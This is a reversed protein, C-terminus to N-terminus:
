TQEWNTSAPDGPAATLQAGLVERPVPMQQCQQCATLPYTQQPVVLQNQFQKEQKHLYKWNSSSFLPSTDLIPKHKCPSTSQKPPVTLDEGGYGFEQM